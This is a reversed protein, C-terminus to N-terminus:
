GCAGQEIKVVVVNKKVDFKYMTWDAGKEKVKLSERALVKFKEVIKLAQILEDIESKTAEITSESAANVAGDYIKRTKISKM